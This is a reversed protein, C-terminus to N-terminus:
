FNKGPVGVFDGIQKCPPGAPVGVLPLSHDARWGVQVPNPSEYCAGTIDTTDGGLGSPGIFDERETTLRNISTPHAFLWIYAGGPAPTPEDYNYVHASSTDISASESALVVRYRGALDTHKPAVGGHVDLVDKAIMILPDNQAQILNTGDPPHCYLELEALNNFVPSVGADLGALNIKCPFDPVGDGNGTGLLNLLPDDCATALNPGIGGGSVADIKGKLSQINLGSGIITAKRITMDEQCLIGVMTDQFPRNGLVEANNISCKGAAYLSVSKRPIAPVNALLPELFGHLKAKISDLNTYGGASIRVKSTVGDGIALSGDGLGPPQPINGNQPDALFAVGGGGPPFYSLTGLFTIKTATVRIGHLPASVTPYDVLCDAPVVFPHGAVYPQGNLWDTDNVVIDPPSDFVGNDNVDLYACNTPNHTHGAASAVGPLAALSFAALITLTYLVRRM